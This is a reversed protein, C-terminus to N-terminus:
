TGDLPGPRPRAVAQAQRRLEEARRTLRAKDPGYSVLAALREAEEAERLLQEPTKVAPLSPVARRREEAVPPQGRTM